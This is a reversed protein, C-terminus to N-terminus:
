FFSNALWLLFKLIMASIGTVVAGVILKGIPRRMFADITDAIETWNVLILRTANGLIYGQIGVITLLVAFFINTATWWALGEHSGVSFIAKPVFFFFLISVTSLTGTAFGFVGPSALYNRYTKYGVWLGFAAMWLTAFKALRVVSESISPVIILSLFGFALILSPVSAGVIFQLRSPKSDRTWNSWESYHSPIEREM